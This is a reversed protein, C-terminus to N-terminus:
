KDVSRLKKRREREKKAKYERRHNNFCEDSCYIQKNTRKRFPRNCEECLIMKQQNTYWDLYWGVDEYNKIEIVINGVEKCNNIYDLKILGNYMITVLNEKALFYVIDDNIKIKVPINAMNKINNYKANGGRFSINNNEKGYRIKNAIRNLKIQVLFTFMVKKFDYPLDLELIYNLEDQYVNVKEITILKQNKKTVTRLVSNLLSYYKAENFDPIYKKCFKYLEIKRQKPKLELIDKYYLALLRLEVMLSNTQFGNKYIKEAYALENYKYQKV